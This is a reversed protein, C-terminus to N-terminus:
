NSGMKELAQYEKEFLAQEMKVRTYVCTFTLSLVDLVGMGLVFNNHSNNTNSATTRKAM